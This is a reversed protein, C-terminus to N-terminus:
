CLVFLVEPRAPSEYASLNSCLENYIQESADDSEEAYTSTLFTSHPHSRHPCKYPRTIERRNHRNSSRNQAKEIAKLTPLAM